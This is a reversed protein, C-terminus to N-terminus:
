LRGSAISSAKKLSFLLMLDDACNEYVIASVLNFFNDPM